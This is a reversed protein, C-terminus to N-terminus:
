GRNTVPTEDKERERERTCILKLADSNQKRSLIGECLKKQSRRNNCSTKREKKPPEKTRLLHQDNEELKYRENSQKLTHKPARQAFDHSNKQTHTQARLTHKHTYRIQSPPASPLPRSTWTATIGYASSEPLHIQM